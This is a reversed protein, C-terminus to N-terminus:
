VEDLIEQSDCSVILHVRGTDGENRVWHRVGPNIFWAGGDAPFHEEHVNGENDVGGYVSRDNTIIPIHIRLGYKTDHDVHPKIEAGAPLLAFRTKHVVDKGITDLVHNIDEPIDEKRKRYFREDGNPNGKAVRRDWISGSKETRDSLSFNDDFTTLALQAYDKDFAKTTEKHVDTFKSYENTMSNWDKDLSEYYSEVLKDVDFHFQKLKKFVPLQKKNKWMAEKM